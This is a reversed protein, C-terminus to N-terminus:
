GKNTSPNTKNNKPIEHKINKNSSTKQIIIEKSSLEGLSWIKRRQYNLKLM